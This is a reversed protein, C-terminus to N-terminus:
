PKERRVSELFKEVEDLEDFRVNGLYEEVDKDIKTESIEFVYEDNNETSSDALVHSESASSSPLM